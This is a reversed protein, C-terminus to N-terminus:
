QISKKMVIASAPCVFGFESSTKVSEPVEDRSIREYGKKEFYDPATETLLYISNIGLDIAKDELSEVMASGLNKSRYAKDVVLSRLLGCNEYKELGVAGIIKGDDISVFFNDLSDPLDEAPLNSSKLLSIILDRQERKAKEIIFQKDEM